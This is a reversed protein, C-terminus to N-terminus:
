LAFSDKGVIMQIYMITFVYLSFSNDM